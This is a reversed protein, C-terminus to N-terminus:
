QIYHVTDYSETKESDVPYIVKEPSQTLFIQLHNVDYDNDSIHRSIQDIIGKLEKFQEIHHKPSKERHFRVISQKLTWTLNSIEKNRYEIMDKIIQVAQVRTNKYPRQVRITQNNMSIVRQM